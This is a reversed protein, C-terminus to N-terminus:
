GQGAFTAAKQPSHRLVAVNAKRSSQPSIFLKGPLRPLGRTEREPRVFIATPPHKVAHIGAQAPIVDHTPRTWSSCERFNLLIQIM